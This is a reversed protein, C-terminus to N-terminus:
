SPRPARLTLHVRIRNLAAGRAEARGLLTHRVLRATDIAVLLARVLAAKPAGFHKRAYRHQSELLLLAHRSRVGPSSGGSTHVAELTPLFLTQWGRRKARILWDTEEYYFFFREDFWGVDDIAARRIFLCAGTAADVPRADALDCDMMRYRRPRRWNPFREVLALDESLFDFPRPARFCNPEVSGGSNLLRTVVAGVHPDRFADVVDRYSGYIDRIDPNILLVVDADAVGFAQNIAAAYGRNVPNAIVIADPEASRVIESAGDTRSNDVMIVRAGAGAFERAIAITRRILPASHFNVIIVDLRAGDDSM